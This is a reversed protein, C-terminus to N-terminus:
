GGPIFGSGNLFGPVKDAISGARVTIKLCHTLTTTQKVTYKAILQCQDATITIPSLVIATLAAAMFGTLSGEFPSRLLVSFTAFTPEIIRLPLFAKSLSLSIFYRM